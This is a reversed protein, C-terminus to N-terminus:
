DRTGFTVVATLGAPTFIHLRPHTLGGSSVPGAASSRRWAIADDMAQMTALAHRFQPDPPLM